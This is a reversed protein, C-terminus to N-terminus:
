GLKAAQAEILATPHEYAEGRTAAAINFSSFGALTSGQRFVTVKTEVPEGDVKEKVTWAVTDEGATVKDAIVGTVQSKDDGDTLAFGKACSEGAARIADLAKAAGDGDYSWLSTMTKTIDLSDLTADEAEKESMKALEEMSPMGKKAAESELTVLRQISAAPEDVPLARLVSAVPQCEATGAKVTGLDAVDDESPEEATEGKLDATAVVAKELEAATLAKAAAASSSAAAASEKREAHAADDDGGGCATALLALTVASASLVTRRVATARM